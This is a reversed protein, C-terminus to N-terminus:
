ILLSVLRLKVSLTSRLRLPLNRYTRTALIETLHRSGKRLLYYHTQIILNPESVPSLSNSLWINPKSLRKVHGFHRM